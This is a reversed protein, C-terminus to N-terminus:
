KKILEVNEFKDEFQGRTILFDIRNKFRKNMTDEVIWKGDYIWTGQIEVTDGYNLQIFNEGNLFDRSVAIIRYKDPHLTDIVFGSATINNQENTQSKTPHYVTATVMTSYLTDVKIPQIIEKERKDPVFLMIIICSVILAIFIWTLRKFAKFDNKCDEVYEEQEKEVFALQEDNDVLAQPDLDKAEWESETIWYGCNECKHTLDNFIVKDKIEAVQITNCKPCKILKKM